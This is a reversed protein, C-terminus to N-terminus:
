NGLNSMREVMRQRANMRARIDNLNNANTSGFSRIGSLHDAPVSVLSGEHLDWRIATFTLNDDWRIQTNDPDLVKGDEDTIEWDRVAYGASIGVIEGREVMGEALKGNPTQNFVIKGMLAGREFWIDQFRGLANAIGGSQHSDLLPIQSGNKMRDLGVSREDIRLVETGYFRTVPSGKSIICDATHNTRDYSSPATNSFRTTIQDRSWGKPGSITM